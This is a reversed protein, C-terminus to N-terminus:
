NSILYFALLAALPQLQHMEPASCYQALETKQKSAKQNNSYLSKGLFEAEAQFKIQISILTSSPLASQVLCISLLKALSYCSIHKLDGIAVAFGLPQLISVNVQKQM